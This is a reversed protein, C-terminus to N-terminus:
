LHKFQCFRCLFSHRAKNCTHKFTALIAYFFLFLQLIKLWLPRKFIIHKIHKHLINSMCNYSFLKHCLHTNWKFTHKIILWILNDPNLWMVFLTEIPLHDSLKFHILAPSWQRVYWTSCPAESLWGPPATIIACLSEITNYPPTQCMCSSLSCSGTTLCLRCANLIPALLWWEDMAKWPWLSGPLKAQHSRPLKAVQGGRPM